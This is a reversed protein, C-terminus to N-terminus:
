IVKKDNLKKEAHFIMKSIAFIYFISRLAFVVFVVSTTFM